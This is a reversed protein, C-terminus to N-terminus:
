AARPDCFPCIGDVKFAGCICRRPVTVEVVRKHKYKLVNGRDSAHSAAAVLTLHRNVIRTTCSNAQELDAGAFCM